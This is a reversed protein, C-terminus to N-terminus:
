FIKFQIIDIAFTEREIFEDSKDINKLVLYYPKNRDFQINKLTFRIKTIRTEPDDTTSNAIFSYRGSVIEGKDDEIYTECTMAQKNEEVKEMQEFDLSFSRNTIKRTITKLRVEVPKVNQKLKDSRLESVHILPVITEQLSPGGHVYQIGGGPTKFLDYGWPAIYKYDGGSVKNLRFELCYPVSLSEDDTLIYRKSTELANLSTINSYKNQPEIENRRYLFGHDATIYFNSIQLNNYLKKVLAILEDICTETVDFVKGESHEGANDMVDHYIYILTKDSCYKRIEKQTMSSIDDYSIAAYASNRAKLVANRAAVGNTLMGDVMVQGSSFSLERHPLLTAMGFSTISPLSSVMHEIEAGGKLIKNSKIRECLEEGIEYRLADSIIVFMKKTPNKQIQSYFEDSGTQGVFEWKGQQELAKSYENGLVDLFRTQYTREVIGILTEFDDSPEDIRKYSTIARRYEADIKYLEGVYKEIYENATLGFPIGKDVQRLLRISSLLFGYEHKLNEYWMSNVRNMIIREFFDFELSGNVLSDCIKKIIELDLCEFIDAGQISTIDKTGILAEIRLEDAIRAQFDRYREDGKISDIFFKADNLGKEPVLYQKYFSSLSDISDNMGYGQGYVQEAYASFVFRKSLIGIKQEGEYNFTESVGNWFYDELRYKVIEKYKSGDNDFVLETLVSDITKKESRVLVSMLALRLDSSRTEDNVSIYNSLRKVRIDSDFFKIHQEIVKRLDNNTIGLRRMTLAVTDAYYEKSYMLIDLLWNENDVPRELPIYVLFNSTLDDHEITKKIEFENRDCILVKCNSFSDDKIDDAFNKAPDYWFVITRKSASNDIIREIEQKAGQYDISAM